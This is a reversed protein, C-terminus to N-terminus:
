TVDRRTTRTALSFSFERKKRVLEIGADRRGSSFNQCVRRPWWLRDDRCVASYQFIRTSLVYTCTRTDISTYTFLGVLTHESANVKWKTKGVEAKIQLGESHLVHWAHCLPVYSNEQECIIIITRAILNIINELSCVAM